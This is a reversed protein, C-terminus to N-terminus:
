EGWDWMFSCDHGKVILQSIIFVSSVHEIELQRKNQSCTKTYQYMKAFTEALYIEIVGKENRGQFELLHCYKKDTVYEGHEEGCFQSM